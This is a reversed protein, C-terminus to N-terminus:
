INYMSTNSVNADKSELFERVMFKFKAHDKEGDEYFVNIRVKSQENIGENLETNMDSRFWVPKPNKSTGKIFKERSSRINTMLFGEHKSFKDWNKIEYNINSITMLPKLVYKENIYSNKSRGSRYQLPIEEWSNYTDPPNKVIICKKKNKTNLRSNIKRKTMADYQEFNIIRASYEASPKDGYLEIDIVDTYNITYYVVREQDQIITSTPTDPTRYTHYWVLYPHCKWETSRGAVQNIIIIFPIDLSLEDWYNENDWEINIDNSGVFKLRIGYKEEIFKKNDKITEFQSILGNELKFNGALRLVGIHRKNTKDNTVDKLKKILNIGQPSIEINDNEYNMFNTAQFFKNNSIYKKIGYYTTPPIFPSAEEFEGVNDIALFEKKAVEITASYLLFYVCTKEKYMSYIYNLLQKDGCGFDLEDLHIKILKNEDLKNNIYQICEDKKKKNNISFVRIGYSALEERQSEDATRHLATLFIHEFNINLLANIEVMGRKGSKVPAPVLIFKKNIPNVVNLVYNYLEPRKEQFYALDKKKPQDTTIPMM